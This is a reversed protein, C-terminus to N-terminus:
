SFTRVADYRDVEALLQYEYKVPRDEQKIARINVTQAIQGFGTVSPDPNTYIEAEHMLITFKARFGGKATYSLEYAVDRLSENDGFLQVIDNQTSYLQNTDVTVSRKDNPYMPAAQWRAGLTNSYNIQQNLTMTAETVPLEFNGVKIKTAWGPFMKKDARRLSTTDTATTTGDLAERLYARGGLFSCDFQLVNDRNAAVTASQMILSRYTSPITGKKIEATWYAVLEDDQPTYTVLAARDTATIHVSGAGFHSSAVRTVTKYYFRTSRDENLDATYYRINESIAQDNWDTGEVRIIGYPANTALTGSTMDIDLRVENTTSALDDAITFNVLTTTTGLNAGTAVVDEASTGPAGTGRLKTATPNKDQTLMRLMLATGGISLGLSLGNSIDVPGQQSKNMAGTGDFFPSTLLEGTESLDMSLVRPQVIYLGSAAPSAPDFATNDNITDDGFRLQEGIAIDSSRGYQQTIADQNVTYAM